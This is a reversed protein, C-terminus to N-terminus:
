ISFLEGGGGEWNTKERSTENESCLDTHHSTGCVPSECDGESDEDKRFLFPPFHVVRTVATHLGLVTNLLDSIAHYSRPLLEESNSAVGFCLSEFMLFM